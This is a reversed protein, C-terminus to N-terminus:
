PNQHREGAGLGAELVDLAEGALFISGAILMDRGGSAACAIGERLSGHVDHPTGMRSIVASIDEPPSSRPSPVPVVHVCGCIRELESFFGYVDKDKLLGSIIDFEREPFIDGLASALASASMPTHACDVVVISPESRVVQVRGPWVLTGLGERIGTETLRLGLREEMAFAARVACAANAVEHAGHLPLRLARMEDRGSLYTFVEGEQDFSERSCSFSGGLLHLRSGTVECRSRIEELPEPACNAIVESNAGIVGAKERAIHRISDGLVGAHEMELPTIVAVENMLVNTADLRGGMGVELVVADCGERAFHLFAMSTVVEFFSLTWRWGEAGMQEVYPYLERTLEVVDRDPIHVDVTIRENFRRLHPSTYRGVRNGSRSLIAHLMATVSGKGKSGAVLAGRLDRHPDELMGLLRQIKELNYLLDGRRKPFLYEIADRYTHIPVDM